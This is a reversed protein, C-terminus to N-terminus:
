FFFNNNQKKKLLKSKRTAMSFILKIENTKDVESHCKVAFLFNKKEFKNIENLFLDKILKCINKIKKCIKISQLAKSISQNIDFLQLHNM